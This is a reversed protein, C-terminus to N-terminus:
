SVEKVVRAHGVEAEALTKWRYTDNRRDIDDYFVATEFLAGDGAGHDNGLWITSVSGGDFETRAVGNGASMLGMWQMYTIPKGDRDFYKDM